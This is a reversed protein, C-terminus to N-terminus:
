TIRKLDSVQKYKKLASSLQAKREEKRNEIKMDQLEHNFFKCSGEQYDLYKGWTNLKEFDWLIIGHYINFLYNFNLNIM